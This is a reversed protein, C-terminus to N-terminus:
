ANLSHYLMNTELINLESVTRIRFRFVDFYIMSVSDNGTDYVPQAHSM